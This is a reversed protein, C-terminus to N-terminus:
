RFQSLSLENFFSEAAVIESDLHSESIAYELIVPVGEPVLDLISRFALLAALSPKEHMSNSTVESFHIQIIRSSYEELIFRAETM